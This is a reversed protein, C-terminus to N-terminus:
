RGGGPNPTPRPTPATANNVEFQLTESVKMGNQEAKIIVRYTKGAEMNVNLNFSVGGRALKKAVRTYEQNNVLITVNNLETVNQAVGSLRISGPNVKNTNGYSGDMRIAPKKLQIAQVYNIQATASASGSDNVVTVELNNMGPNLTVVASAVQTSADFQMPIAVGNVKFLVKEALTINTTKIKVTYNAAAVTFPSSSPATFQVTPPNDTSKVVTVTHEYSATGCTNTATIKFKAVGMNLVQRISIMGTSGNFTFSVPKSNMSVEIQSKDTIEFADVDLEFSRNTTQSNNPANTAELSLGPQKCVVRTIKRELTGQGCENVGKLLFVNQGVVLRAQVKLVRSVNDYTFVQNQGNLTLSLQGQNVNSTGMELSIQEEYTEFDKQRPSVVTFGPLSCPQDNPEYVISTQISSQDCANSGSVEISNNGKILTVNATYTSGNSQPTVVKGNVKVTVANLKTKTTETFKLVLTSSTTKTGNTSPNVFAFKPANCPEVPRKYRINTSKDVSGGQNSAQIFFVNNGEMLSMGYTLVKTNLDFNFSNTAVAQGNVKLSVQNKSDVNTVKAELMFGAASVEQNSQNPNTYVITPPNVVIPKNYIIKTEDSATGDSNTATINIVNDGEQLYVNSVIQGTSADFSFGSLSTGNVKFAVQNKSQVHDTNAKVEFTSVQVSYPSQQPVTISVLPPNKAVPRYIVVTSKSDTGATNTAKIEFVNSGELLSVNMLLEHSSSSFSFANSVTGNFKVQIQSNSAVEDVRAKLLYNASSVNTPNVSPNLYTVRPPNETPQKQYFITTEKSDTGATNTGQVFIVNAGRVLTLPLTLNQGSFTFNNVQQGNVKVLVGASSTVNFITAQVTYSSSSVNEPNASPVTFNVVPPQVTSSPRCLITAQKSDQGDNNTGTLDFTNTGAVLDVTARVDGTNADFTFNTLNGGNMLLQVQNRTTVNLVRGVFNFAKTYTTQNNQAPNQITVVPPKPASRQYIITTQDSATGRENTGFLEFVNSGPSLYVDATFVGTNPNYQFNAQDNGNQKFRVKDKANVHNIQGVVQFNPSNVSRGSASPNTFQVTPQNMSQAREYIITTREIDTGDKNVGTIEVMNSGPMLVVPFSVEKTQDNFNFSTVVNNRFRITIDAKGAVHYVKAVVGYNPNNVTLPDTGPNIYDVVPLQRVVDNVIKKKYVLVVTDADSGFNNVGTLIFVNEGEKLRMQATFRDNNPSFFFNKEELNNATFRVGDRSEVNKIIAELQYVSDTVEARSPVPRTFDVEPPYLSQPEEKYKDKGLRFQLYLNTYHYIDQGYKGDKIVGDYTDIETFTTKHEFGITTGRGLQYGIGFGLSPMVNLNFKTQDSGVLATEYVGDRLANISSKTLNSQDYQYLYQGATATDTYILDGYTQHWTLGIGGFLYPDIRSNERLRNFHLALELSWRYTETQFNNVAFGLSDYYNTPDTSLVQNQFSSDTAFYDQGYWWGKLFRTRLDFSAIRGYNYNFSRGLYLGWGSNVQTKVDATNWTAGTNFGIFWKASYNTAVQSHVQLMFFSVFLILYRNKM